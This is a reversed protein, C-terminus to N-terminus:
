YDLLVLLFMVSVFVLPIMIISLVLIAISAVSTAIHEEKHLEEDIYIKADSGRFAFFLPNELDIRVTHKENEGVSLTYSHHGVIFARSSTHEKGDVLIKVKGMFTEYNFSINHKEKDGIEFEIM